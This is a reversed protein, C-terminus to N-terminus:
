KSFKGPVIPKLRENDLAQQIHKASNEISGGAVSNIEEDGNDALIDGEEM